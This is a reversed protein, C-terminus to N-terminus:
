FAPPGHCGDGSPGLECTKGAVLVSLEGAGFANMSRITGWVVFDGAFQAVAAGLRCASVGCLPALGGVAMGAAIPALQHSPMGELGTTSLSHLVFSRRGGNGANLCRRWRCWSVTM